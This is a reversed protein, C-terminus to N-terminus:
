RRPGVPKGVLYRSAIARYNKEADRPVKVLVDALDQRSMKGLPGRRDVSRADEGLGLRSRDFHVIYNEPVHYGLAYFIKSSIVDAASAIEPTRQASVKM